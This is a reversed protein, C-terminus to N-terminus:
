KGRCDGSDRGLVPRRPRLIRNRTSEKPVGSWLGSLLSDYVPGKEQYLSFHKRGGELPKQPVRSRYNM